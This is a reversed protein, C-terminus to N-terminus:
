PHYTKNGARPCRNFTSTWTYGCVNCTHKMSLANGGEDVLWLRFQPIGEVAFSVVYYVGDGGNTVDIKGKNDDLIFVLPQGAFSSVYLRVLDIADQKSLLGIQYAGDSRVDFYVKGNEDLLLAKLSAVVRSVQSDDADDSGCSVFTLAALAISLFLIHKM